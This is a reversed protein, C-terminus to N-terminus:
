EGAAHRRWGRRRAAPKRDGGGDDNGGGDDQRKAPGSVGAWATTTIGSWAVVAALSLPGSRGGPSGGGPLGAFAPRVNQGHVAELHKGAILDILAPPGSGATGPWGTTTLPPVNTTPLEPDVATVIVLPTSGPVEARHLDCRTGPLPAKCPVTSRVALRQLWPHTAV